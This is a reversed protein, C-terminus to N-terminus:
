YPFVTVLGWVTVKVVLEAPPLKRSVASVIVIVLTLLEPPVALKLYRSLLVPVGIIVAAM